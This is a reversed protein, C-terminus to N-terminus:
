RCGGLAQQNCDARITNRSRIKVVESNLDDVEFYSAAGIGDHNGPVRFARDVIEDPIDVEVVYFKPIWVMDWNKDLNLLMILITQSGSEMCEMKLLEGALIWFIM